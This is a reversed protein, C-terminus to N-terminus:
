KLIGWVDGERSDLEIREIKYRRIKIGVFKLEGCLGRLRSQMDEYGNSHGTAFADNRNAQERGDKRMYLKAPKFKWIACVTEFKKKLKPKDFMPDVTVHAEYM